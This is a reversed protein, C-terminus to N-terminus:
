HVDQHDRPVRAPGGDECCSAVREACAALFCFLVIVSFQSNEDSNSHTAAPRSAACSHYMIQAIDRVVCYPRKKLCKSRNSADVFQSPRRLKIGMAQHPATRKKGLTSQGAM